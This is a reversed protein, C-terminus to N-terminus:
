FEKRENIASLKKPFRWGLDRDFVISCITNQFVSEVGSASLDSPGSSPGKQQPRRLSFSM